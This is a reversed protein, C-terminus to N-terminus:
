YIYFAYELCIQLLLKRTEINTVSQIAQAIDIVVPQEDLYTLLQHAYDQQDVSPPSYYHSAKLLLGSIITLETEELDELNLESNLGFLFQNELDILRQALRVDNESLKKINTFAKNVLNSIETDRHSLRVLIEMLIQQAQAITEIQNALRIDKKNSLTVLDFVRTFWKENKIENFNQDTTASLQEVAHQLDSFNCNDEELYNYDIAVHQEGM